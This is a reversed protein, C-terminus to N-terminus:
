ILHVALGYISDDQGVHDQRLSEALMAHFRKPSKVQTKICEAIRRELEERLYFQVEAEKRTTAEKAAPRHDWIQSVTADLIGWVYGLQFEDPM